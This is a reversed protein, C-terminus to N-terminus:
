VYRKYYSINIDVDRTLFGDSYTISAVGVDLELFSGLYDVPNGNVKVTREYSDIVIVNTAVLALGYLLMEQGNKNNSIQIYDATGTLANLTITIIPYQVPATGAVTPTYTKTAATYATSSGLVTLAIDAGFPQSCIFEINFSVAKKGSTRSIGLKNVTAVYRRTTSNYDIDLNGDTKNFYGKFTDVYSELSHSSDCIIYGTVNIVKSPYDIGSISSKNAYALGFLGIDKNPISYHDIDTIRYNSNQITNGNFKLAM